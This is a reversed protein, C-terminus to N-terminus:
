CMKPDRFNGIHTACGTCKVMKALSPIEFDEGYNDRLTAVELEATIGFSNCIANLKYKRLVDGHTAVGM